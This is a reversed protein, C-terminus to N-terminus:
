GPNRRISRKKKNSTCECLVAHSSSSYFHLFLCTWCMEGRLAERVGERLGQDTVMAEVLDLRQRIAAPDVLPAKLWSQMHCICLVDDAKAWIGESSGADAHSTSPLIHPQLM